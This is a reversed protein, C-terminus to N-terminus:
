KICITSQNVNYKHGVANHSVSSCLKDLVDIKELLCMVTKERKPVCPLMKVIRQPAMKFLLIVLLFGFLAFLTASFM